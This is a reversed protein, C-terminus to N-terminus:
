KRNLGPGLSIKMGQHHASPYQAPFVCVIKIVQKFFCRDRLLFNGSLVDFLEKIFAMFLCRSLINECTNVISKFAAGLTIQIEKIVSTM